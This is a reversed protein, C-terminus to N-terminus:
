FSKLKGFKKLIQKVIDPDASPCGNIFKTRKKLTKVPDFIGHKKTAKISKFAKVAANCENQSNGTMQGYLCTVTVCPDGSDPSEESPDSSVGEFPALANAALAGSSTVLTASLILATFITKM